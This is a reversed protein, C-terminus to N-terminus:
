PINSEFFHIPASYFEEDVKTKIKASKILNQFFIQEKISYHIFFM